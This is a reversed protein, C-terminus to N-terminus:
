LHIKNNLINGRERKQVNGEKCLYRRSPFGPVIVLGGVFNPRCENTCTADTKLTYHLVNKLTSVEPAIYNATLVM